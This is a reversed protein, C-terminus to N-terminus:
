QNKSAYIKELMEDSTLCHCNSNNQVDIFQWQITATDSTAYLSNSLGHSMFICHKGVAAKIYSYGGNTIAVVFYNDKEPDHGRFFLTPGADKLLKFYIFVATEKVQEESLDNSLHCAFATGQPVEQCIIRMCDTQPFDPFNPKEHYKSGIVISMYQDAAHKWPQQQM